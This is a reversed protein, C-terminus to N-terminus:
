EDDDIHNKFIEYQDKIEDLDVTVLTHQHHRQEFIKMKSTNLPNSPHIVMYEKCKICARARMKIEWSFASTDSLILYADKKL